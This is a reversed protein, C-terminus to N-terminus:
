AEAYRRLVGSVTLITLSTIIWGLLAYLAFGLMLVGALPHPARRAPAPPAAVPAGADSLRVVVPAPAAPVCEAPPDLNLVPAMGKLSRIVAYGTQSCEPSRAEASGVAGIDIAWLNMLVGILAYAAFTIIARAGSLGFRFGVYYLAAVGKILPWALLRCAWFAAYQALYDIVSSDGRRAALLHPECFQEVKVRAEQWAREVLIANAQAYQGQARYVRAAQTYPQAAYDIYRRPASNTSLQQRIWRHRMALRPPLNLTSIGSAVYVALVVAIWEMMPHIDTRLRGFIIGLAASAALINRWLAKRHERRRVEARKGEASPSYGSGSNFYLADYTFARLRLQLRDDWEAGAMDDLQRVSVFALSIHPTPMSRKPRKEQGPSSYDFARLAKRAGKGVARVRLAGGIHSSDFYLSDVLLRWQRVEYAKNMARSGFEVEELVMSGKIALRDFEVLQEIRCKHIEFNGGASLGKAQTWVASSVLEGEGSPLRLTNLRLNEMRFRQGVRMAPATFAIAPRNEPDFGRLTADGEVVINEASIIASQRMVIQLNRGIRASKLELSSHWPNECAKETPTLDLRLSGGVSLGDGRFWLGCQFPQGKPDIVDIQDFETEIDVDGRIVADTLLIPGHLRPQFTRSAGNSDAPPCRVVNFHLGGRIEAGQFDLGVIGDDIVAGGFDAKDMSANPFSVGGELCKLPLFDRSVEEGAGARLVGDIRANRGRLAYRRRGTVRLSSSALTSARLCADHLFVDGTVHCDAISVGGEARFGRDLRLSGLLELGRCDVAYAPRRADDPAPQSMVDVTAGSFAVDGRVQAARLAVQGEFLATSGRWDSGVATSVGAEVVAQSLDLALGRSGGGSHVSWGAPTAADAARIDAGHLELRGIRANQFVLGGEQRGTAHFRQSEGVAGRRQRCFVTGDVRVNQARLAADHRATLRAGHARLDGHIHADAVTVGGEAEFEPELRVSGHVDAGRLCLAYLFPGYTAEDGCPEGVELKARHLWLDGDIRANALDVSCQAEGYAREGPAAESSPPPGGPTSIDRLDLSSEFEADRAQFLRLTSRRLSVRRYRGRDLRLGKDFVCDIFSIPLWSCGDAPTLASLDLLGEIRAGHIRVGEPANPSLALAAFVQRLDGAAVPPDAEPRWIHGAALSKLVSAVVKGHM